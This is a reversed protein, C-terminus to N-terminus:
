DHAPAAEWAGRGDLWLRATDRFVPALSEFDAVGAATEAAIARLESYRRLRYLTEMYWVDLQPSGGFRARAAALWDCAARVEGLRLLLRGAAVQAGPDDPRRELYRRYTALARERNHRERDEDLLGSYAYRDYHRALDLLTEAGGQREVRREIRLAENLFRDEINAIATAAQVRVSNDEDALGARLAAAFSPQYYRSMMGIALQKQIRTGHAMVDLFPVVQSGKQSRQIAGSLEQYLREALDRHEEPFLEAYWEEFPTAARRFQRYVLLGLVVGFAGIPGTVAVAGVLLVQWYLRAPDGADALGGARWWRLSVALLLALVGAHVLAAAVLRPAAGVLLYGAYSDALAGAAGLLVFRVSWAGGREPRPEAGPESTPM